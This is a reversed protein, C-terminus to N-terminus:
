FQNINRRVLTLQDPKNFHDKRDFVKKAQKDSFGVKTLIEYSGRSGEGHYGFSCGYFIVTQGTITFLKLRYWNKSDYQLIARKVPSMYKEIHKFFELSQKTIGNAYLNYNKDKIHTVGRQIDRKLITQGLM